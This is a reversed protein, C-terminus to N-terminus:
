SMWSAWTWKGTDQTKTNKFLKEFNEWSTQKLYVTYKTLKNILKLNKITVEPEADAKYKIFNCLEVYTQPAISKSFMWSYKNMEKNETKLNKNTFSKYYHLMNIILMKRANKESKVM